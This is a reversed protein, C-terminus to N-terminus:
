TNRSECIAIVHYREMGRPVNNDAAPANGMCYLRWNYLLEVTVIQIVANNFLPACSLCKNM